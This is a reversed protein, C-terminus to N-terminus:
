QLQPGSFTGEASDQVSIDFTNAAISLIAYASVMVLFGVVGWLLHQRGSTRAKEDSANLVYQLGGWIFVLVSIAMLLVILPVVIIENIKAVFRLAIDTGAAYAIM